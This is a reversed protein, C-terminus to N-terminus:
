IFIKTILSIKQIVNSFNELNNIIEIIKELNEHIFAICFIFFGLRTLILFKIM